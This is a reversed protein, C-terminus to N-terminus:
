LVNRDLWKEMVNFVERNNTEMPMLNGNGNIGLDRLRILEAQCGAQRLFAVNSYGLGGGGFEGTLWAIPVKQLNKLKRAPEAQLKFASLPTRPSDPPVPTDVLRFDSLDSVPPDYTLPIATLGWRLQAAFPNGNIEVSMIGKVLDPRRDALIWSLFGGFAHGLLISPGIKDLLEVGGKACLESHYAEDSANAIENAMFQDVLPDEGIVHNGPWRVTNMVAPANAFGDYTPFLQLHSPGLSDPHYPARGFGPRDVVYVRYGEQAFFHLWGPRRGIGMFHTSQGGGGHVLVIPYPKRVQAPIFYQVFMQGTAITGYAMKKRDVGVWFHGTDALKMATSDGPQPNVPRSAASRPYMPTGPQPMKGLWDLVPQLAARNNKELMPYWGNGRVGAAELKLHDATCGAERLFAVVADAAPRNPSAEGTIVRVPVAALNPMRRAKRQLEAPNRAAPDYTIPSATLGWAAGAGSFPVATPELAVIGKVLNPREDAALWAFAASDGHTVIVSPGIEDLLMASRARWAEHSRVNGPLAPGFSAALQWVSSDSADPNGPWQTGTSAITKAIDEASPAQQPFNGHLYPHWAPRGQAPRDLTYVMYGAQLLYHAWGPRGDPTTMWDLGQGFGGHVLVVPYPYRVQAPIAYEVFLHMGNHVTGRMLSAREVGLWFYSWEALDVPAQKSGANQQAVAADPIGALAASIAANRVFDRRNM